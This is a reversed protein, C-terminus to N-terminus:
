NFRTFYGFLCYGGIDLLISFHYLGQYLLVDLKHKSMLFPMSCANVATVEGGILKALVWATLPKVVFAVGAAQYTKPKKARHNKQRNGDHKKCIFNKEM